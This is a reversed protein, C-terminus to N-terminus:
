KTQSNPLSEPRELKRWYQYQIMANAMVAVIFFFTFPCSRIIGGIFGALICMVVSTYGYCFAFVSKDNRGLFHLSLVISFMPIILWNILLSYGLSIPTNFILELM